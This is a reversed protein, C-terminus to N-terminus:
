PHLRLKDARIAREDIEAVVAKAIRDVDADSLIVHGEGDLRPLDPDPMVVEGTGDVPVPGNGDYIVM